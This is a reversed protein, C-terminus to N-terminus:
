HSISCSPAAATLQQASVELMDAMNGGGAPTMSPTTHKGQGAANLMFGKRSQLVM